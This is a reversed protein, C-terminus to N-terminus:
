ITPEAPPEACTIRGEEALGLARHLQAGLALAAAASGHAATEACGSGSGSRASRPAATSAARPLEQM